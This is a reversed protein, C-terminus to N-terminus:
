LSVEKILQYLEEGTLPIKDAFVGIANEVAAAVAPAGGDMPLEGIGKAGYAGAACPDEFFRVKFEPTDLTTPILYGNLHGTSYKGEATLSLDELISWGYSQLVGGEIQGVLQVPNIARGIEVSVTSELPVIDYIDCDVEIEVVQAMWAYGKYASGEYKEDNWASAADPKYLSEGFLRGKTELWNSAAGDFDWIRKQGDYFVGDKYAVSAANKTKEVHKKLKELLDLAADRVVGGVYMTTRSAVTPGSNPVRSTDPLPHYVKEFPLELAEAAIMPLVTSTGQGMDTSSALVEVIGARGYEVAVRTGMNDEGSGTFGGGHLCLSLGIGKRIRGTQKRYEKHKCLYDSRKVADRLVEEAFVGENMVQGYPFSDGLRIINKLRVDLPDLGLTAAIRDMQREMAFLSQPAGFGRFAGNPPTNTAMARARLKANPIKYAGTCHLVSRSLVVKSMTTAAGGDLVLDVELATITGDRKVGTKHHIRSPHRKTTALLDETRDFLLKVPHGSAKALLAVWVAIVSPYDEKGGFGGGTTSQRVTVKQPDLALAKALANHVYYPCQMSGEIEVGEFVTGNLKPWAVMGQNELYVHEQYHTRYTGEVIVDAEEFGKQPDGRQVLFEDIVNQKGWIVSKVAISDEVTLIPTEPIIDPKLHSLAEKLLTEDPAAVLALAQTAYSIRTGALIEYDDRVMAVANPGPLDRATVLAVRSWDFAPDKAIKELRGAAVDSRLVGAFWAGPIELDAVYVAEGTAKALGDPRPLSKGIVKFTESM